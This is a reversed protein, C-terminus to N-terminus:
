LRGQERYSYYNGDTVIVHDMMNLHMVDAAKRVNSTLMDDERSPRLSGSPHNHVLAFVTANCLVAERMIIRVDVSTSTIGGQGIRVSKILRFNQNMYLVHAEEVDLDMMKPHMYNYVRVANSIEPHIERVSSERRRGLELAAMIRTATYSGIGEVEMLEQIKAKGLSNLNGSYRDLINRAVEVATMRRTGSGILLALLEADSLVGAGKTQMKESPRDEAAWQKINLKGTTEM